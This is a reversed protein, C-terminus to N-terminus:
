IALQIAQNFRLRLNNRPSNTSSYFDPSAREYKYGDEDRAFGVVRLRFRSSFIFKLNLRNIFNNASHKRYKQSSCKRIQEMYLIYLHTSLFLVLNQMAWCRSQFVRIKGINAPLKQPTRSIYEFTKRRLNQVLPADHIGFRM